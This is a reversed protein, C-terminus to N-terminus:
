GGRVALAVVADAGAVGAQRGDAREVAVGREAVGFVGPEDGPHEVNGGLATFALVDAVEVVVLRVSQEVSGVPVAPGPSSVVGQQVQGDLGTEPDGLQGAQVYAVYLEAGAGVDTAEAFPRFCLHVGM